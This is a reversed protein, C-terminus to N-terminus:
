NNERLKELQDDRQIDRLIQFSSLYSVKSSKNFDKFPISTRVPSRSIGEKSYTRNKVYPYVINVSLDLREAIYYASKDRYYDDRFVRLESKFGLLYKQGAENIEYYDRLEPGVPRDGDSMYNLLPLDFARMFENLVGNTGCLNGERFEGFKTKTM